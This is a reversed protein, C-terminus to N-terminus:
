VAEQESKRVQNKGSRKALYLARDAAEIVERASAGHRSEAIGISVTVRIHAFQTDAPRYAEIRRRIREAITAASELGSGPMVIAFEEGGYRACVDFVRISQRLVDAVGRIVADGAVHGFTDNIAKFEDIDIMMVSVPSAQRSARQLEEALRKDLYPRNFLRSAPDVIAAQAYERARREARERALALAAPALMMEVVALDRQDYPRDNQKDTLCVVGLVDRGSRVPVAIFSRSRYRSRRGTRRLQSDDVVRLPRGRQYTQGIVGVGPAIQLPEVLELPYGHTAVIVLHGQDTEVAFAGLRSPIAEVVHRLVIDCMKRLGRDEGALAAALRQAAGDAPPSWSEDGTWARALRVLDATSGSWDGELMVVVAADPRTLLRVLTWVEGAGEWTAVPSRDSAIAAALSAPLSSAPLVQGGRAAMQALARAAGRSWAVIAVSVGLVEHLQACWRRVREGPPHDFGDGGALDALRLCQPASLTRSPHVASMDTQGRSFDTEFGVNGV